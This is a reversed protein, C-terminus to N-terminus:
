KKYFNMTFKINKAGGWPSFIIYSSVKLIFFTNIKKLISTAAFTIDCILIIVYTYCLYLTSTYNENKKKEKNKKKKPYFIIIQM